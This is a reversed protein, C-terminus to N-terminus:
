NNCHVIRLGIPWGRRGFSYYHGWNVERGRRGPRWLPSKPGIKAGVKAKGVFSFNSIDHFWNSQSNAVKLDQRIQIRFLKSKQNQGLFAISLFFGNNEFGYIIQFSHYHTSSFFSSSFSILIFIILSSIGISVCQGIHIRFDVAFQSM